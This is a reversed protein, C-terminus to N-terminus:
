YQCNEERENESFNKVIFEEVENKSSDLDGVVLYAHHLKEKYNELNESITKM